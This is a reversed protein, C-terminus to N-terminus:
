AARRMPEAFEFDEQAYLADQQARREREAHIKSAALAKIDELDRFLAGDGLWDQVWARPWRVTELPQVRCINWGLVREFDIVDIQSPRAADIDHLVSGLPTASNTLVVLSLGALWDWRYAKSADAYVTPSSFRFKGGLVVTVVESPQMGRQRAQAIAYADGQPYPKM